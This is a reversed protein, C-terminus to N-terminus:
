DFVAYNPIVMPRGPAGASYPSVSGDVDIKLVAHRVQDCAYVRGAADLCLGLIFGGSDAIQSCAGDLGIRYIQGAEGGAYVYGDPGWTVCEPHDLGDVFPAFSEIALLTDSM